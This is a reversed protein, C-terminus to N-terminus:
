SIILARRYGATICVVPERLAVAFLHATHSFCVPLINYFDNCLDYGRDGVHMKIRGRM